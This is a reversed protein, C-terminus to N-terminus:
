LTMYALHFNFWHFSIIHSSSRVCQIATPQSCHWCYTMDLLWDVQPRLQTRVLKWFRRYRYVQNFLVSPTAYWYILVFAENRLVDTVDYLKNVGADANASFIAGACCAVSVNGNETSGVGYEM